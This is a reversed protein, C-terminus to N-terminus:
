KSLISQIINKDKDSICNEDIKEYLNKWYEYDAHSILHTQIQKILTSIYKKNKSDAIAELLPKENIYNDLNQYIIDFAYKQLKPSLALITEKSASSILQIFIEKFRDSNLNDEFFGIILSSYETKHINKLLNELKNKVTIDDIVFKGEKVENIVNGLVNMYEESINDTCFICDKFVGIPLEKNCINM